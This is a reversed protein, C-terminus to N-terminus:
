SQPDRHGGGRHNRKGHRGARMKEFRELQEPTLIDRIQAHVRAHLVTMDAVVSGKQDAIARIEGENFTGSERFTKMAQRNAVMADALRDAEPRAADLVERLRAKQEESMDLRQAMRAVQFSSAFFKGGGRGGAFEGHASATNALAVLGAVAAAGVATIISRKM